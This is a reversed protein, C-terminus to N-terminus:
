GDNHEHREDSGPAVRRVARNVEGQHEKQLAAEEAGEGSEVEQVPEEIPLQREDGREKQHTLPASGFACLSRQLEKEVGHHAADREEDREKREIERSSGEVEECKCLPRM